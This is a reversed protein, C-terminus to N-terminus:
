LSPVDPPCTVASQDVIREAWEEGQRAAELLARADSGAHGAVAAM